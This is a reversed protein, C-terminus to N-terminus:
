ARWLDSQCDDITEQRTGQKSKCGKHNELPLRSLLERLDPAGLLGHIQRGRTDSPIVAQGEVVLVVVRIVRRRRRRGGLM